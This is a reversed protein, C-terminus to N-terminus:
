FKILLQEEQQFRLIDMHRIINFVLKILNMKTLIARTEQKKKLKQIREKGKTFTGCASHTFGPQKLHMEPMFKDGALLFKNIVEDM